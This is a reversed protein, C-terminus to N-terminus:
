ISKSLLEVTAEFNDVDLEQKFNTVVQRGLVNLGIYSLQVRLAMLAHTGGGGSFTAIAAPKHNFCKRWDKSARSIWALTNTVVPPVGGNYEPVTFVFGKAKNFEEVQDSIGEPLGNAESKATYLPFDLEIMDIVKSSLGKKQFEDHFKNALELNKNNSGALILIDSM